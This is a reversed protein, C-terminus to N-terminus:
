KKKRKPQPQQQKPLNKVEERTLVKKTQFKGPVVAPPLALRQLFEIAEQVKSVDDGRLMTPGALTPSATVGHTRLLKSLEDAADDGEVLRGAIRVNDVYYAVSVINM